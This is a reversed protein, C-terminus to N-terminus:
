GGGPPAYPDLGLRRLITIARNVSLQSWLPQEQLFEVYGYNPDLELARTYQQEADERRIAADLTLALGANVEATDLGEDIAADFAIRADEYQGADLLVFGLRNLIVPDDYGRGLAERYAEIAGARYGLQQLAWGRQAYLEASEVGRDTARRYATDAQAFEGLALLADGRLHYAEGSGPDGELAADADALAQEYDEIEYRLWGRRLYADAYAPDRAITRDYMEIAQEPQGAEEFARAFYFYYEAVDPRLEILADFAVLAPGYDELAMLTLAQNFLPAPEEPAREVAITFDDLAADYGGAQYYMVGRLNVSWAADPALMVLRETEALAEDPRDVLSLALARNHVLDPRDTADEAAADYAALAAEADGMALYGNGRAIQAATFGGALRLAESDLRLAEVPDGLAGTVRALVFLLVAEHNVAVSSPTDDLTARLAHLRSEARILAGERYELLAVAIEAPFSLHDGAVEIPQDSPAIVPWPDPQRTLHTFPPPSADAYLYLREIGVQGEWAALLADGPVHLITDVEDPSEVSPPLDVEVYSIIGALPSSALVENLAQRLAEGGGPDAEGLPTLGVTRTDPATTPSLTSTPLPMPSPTGTPTPSPTPSPSATPADTPVPTPAPATQGFLSGRLILVAVALSAVMFVLASILATSSRRGQPGPQNETV